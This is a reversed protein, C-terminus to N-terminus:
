ARAMRPGFAAVNLVIMILAFLPMAMALGIGAHMVCILVLWATRTRRPWIFVAYGLELFVIAIGAPLLAWSFRAIWEPPLVDFPSRTLAHWVSAGTWWGSGLLKALGGSLYILCLHIQLVRRIFVPVETARPGGLRHDLAFRDPLPALALYFLGITILQDVGYVVLFGSQAACLHLFWATIAALRSAFGALLFLGALLLWWWAFSLALREDLGLWGAPVTLWSLTPVFPSHSRVIAESLQRVLQM